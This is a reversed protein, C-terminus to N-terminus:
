EITSVTSSITQVLDSSSRNQLCKPCFFDGEPAEKLPPDLCALHHDVNCGDCIIIIGAEESLGCVRCGTEEIEGTTSRGKISKKGGSSSPVKKKTKKRAEIAAKRKAAAIEEEEKEEQERQKDAAINAGLYGRCKATGCRCM